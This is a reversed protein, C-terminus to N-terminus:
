GSSVNGRLSSYFEILRKDRVIKKLKLATAKAVNVLKRKDVTNTDHSICLVTKFPNLQAIPKTFGDLFHKEEAHTADDEYAHTKLYDRHYAMTNNTAHCVNYPGFRSVVQRDSYYVYIESSGAMLKREAQLRTIAHSVREPPYFDDDDFCVIYEGKCLGNLMNRKRGLALKEPHHIYRVNSPANAFVDANSMPSDDLVVLERRDTPYTQYQFMYLLHPLFDRRNCTPTVCSVFPRASM